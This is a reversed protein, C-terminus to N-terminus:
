DSSPWKDAVWLRGCVPTPGARQKACDSAPTANISMACSRESTLKVKLDCRRKRYGNAYFEDLRELTEDPSELLSKLAAM